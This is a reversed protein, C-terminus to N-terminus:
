LQDGEISPLRTFRILEQSDGIVIHGGSEVWAHAQFQGKDSRAVGFRVTADHGNRTLMLKTVLAQTLCTAGPVYRSAVTVAWVVRDVPVSRKRSLSTERTLRALGDRVIRLPLLWLGLRVCWVSLSTKLLLYRDATSLRLFKSIAAM